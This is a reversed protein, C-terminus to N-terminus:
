SEGEAEDEGPEEVEPEGEYFASAQINIMTDGESGEDVRLDDIRIAREYVQLYDLFHLVQHYNGEFLFTLPMEVYGEAFQREGFRVQMFDMNSLDAGSQLDLILQDEHPQDPLMYTLVELNADMEDSQQELAKMAVLRTEALELMQKEEAQFDRERQLTNWQMLNLLLGAVLLVVAVAIVMVNNNNKAM